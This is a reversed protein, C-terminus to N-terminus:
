FVLHLASNRQFSSQAESLNIKIMFSHFIFNALNETQFQHQFSIKNSSRRTRRQSATKSFSIQGFIKKELIIMFSILRFLNRQEAVEPKWFSNSLFFNDFLFSFWVVSLLTRRFSSTATTFTTTSATTSATTSSSRTSLSRRTWARQQFTQALCRNAFSLSTLTLATSLARTQLAPKHSARHQFIGRSGFQLLAAANSASLEKSLLVSASHQDQSTDLLAACPLARHEFSSRDFSDSQLQQRCRTSGFWTLSLSTM